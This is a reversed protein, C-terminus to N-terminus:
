AADLLRLLGAVADDVPTRTTDIRLEPRKPAEYPAGIGTFDPLDGARARAYLGKPDRRECEDLPTDV